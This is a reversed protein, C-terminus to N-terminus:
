TNCSVLNTPADPAIAVAAKASPLVAVGLIFVIAVRSIMTKVEDATSSIKLSYNKMAQNMKNTCFSGFGASARAPLVFPSASKRDILRRKARIRKKFINFISRVDPKRFFFNPSKCACYDNKILPSDHKFRLCDSNMFFSHALGARM